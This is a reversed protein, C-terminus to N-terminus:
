RGVKPTLVIVQDQHHPNVQGRGVIAAHAWRGGPVRDPNL